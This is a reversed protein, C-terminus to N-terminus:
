QEGDRHKSRKHWLWTWELYVLLPSLCLVVYKHTAGGSFGFSYKHQWQNGPFWYWKVPGWGRSKPPSSPGRSVQIEIMHCRYGYRGFSDGEFVNHM